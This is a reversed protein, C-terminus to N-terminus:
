QIVSDSYFVNLWIHIVEKSCTWFILLAVYFHFLSKLPNKHLGNKKLNAENCYTFHLKEKDELSM